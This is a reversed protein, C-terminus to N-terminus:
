GPGDFRDEWPACPVTRGCRPAPEGPLAEVGRVAGSESVPATPDPASARPAGDAPVRREPLPGAPCTVRPAAAVVVPVTGCSEPPDGPTSPPDPPAGPEFPVLGAAGIAASTPLVMALTPDETVPRALWSPLEIGAAAGTVLVTLPATLATRLETSWATSAVVKHCRRIATRNCTSQQGRTQSARAVARAFPSGRHRGVVGDCGVSVGRLQHVVPAPLTSNEVPDRRNLGIGFWM